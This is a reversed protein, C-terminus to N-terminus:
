GIDMGVVELSSTVPTGKRKPKGRKHNVLSGVTPIENKNNIVSLGTGLNELIKYDKLQRGGFYSQLTHRSLRDKTDGRSSELHYQPPPKTDIKKFDEAKRNDACVTDDDSIDELHEEDFHDFASQLKYELKDHDTNEDDQKDNYCDYKTTSQLHSILRDLQKKSQAWTVARGWHIQNLAKLHCAFVDLHDAHDTIYTDVGYTFDDCLLDESTLEEM